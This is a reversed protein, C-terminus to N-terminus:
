RPDPVETVEIIVGLAPHDVYHREDSRMRRADSMVWTRDDDAPARLEIEAHLYRSRYVRLMGRPADAGLDAPLAVSQARDADLGPQEWATHWYVTFGERERLRRAIANLARESEPVRTYGLGEEGPDQLPWAFRVPLPPPTESPAEAFTEAIPPQGLLIVEVRYYQPSDSNDQAPAQGTLALGLLLLMPLYFRYPRRKVNAEM